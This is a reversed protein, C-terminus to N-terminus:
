RSFELIVIPSLLGLGFINWHDQCRLGRSAMHRRVRRPSILAVPFSTSSRFTRNYLNDGNKIELLLHGGTLAALIDLGREQDDPHVHHFMNICLVLDFEEGPERPTLLDHAAYSLNPAGGYRGRALETMEPSADHGRFAVSPHLRALKATFDGNGCGVDLASALGGALGKVRERVHSRVMRQWISHQREGDAAADYFGDKELAARRFFAM